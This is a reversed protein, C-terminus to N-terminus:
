CRRARASTGALRSNSDEVRLAGKLKESGSVHPGWKDAVLLWGARAPKRQSKTLDKKRMVSLDRAM